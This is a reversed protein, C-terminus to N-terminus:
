FGLLKGLGSFVASFAKELPGSPEGTRSKQWFLSYRGTFEDDVLPAKGWLYPWFVETRHVGATLRADFGMMLDQEMRTSRDGPSTAVVDGGGQVILSGTGAFMIYRVQWTALSQIGWRWRTELTPAGLVGVVHSPRMVVGPHDEFDIRMLYSNPDDPAALTAETGDEDGTIRSLSHLGAAFSIFPANWDYLIQSRVTGQVPRVYESRASLVEGASLRIPLTREAPGAHLTAFARGSGAALQLPRQARSVLPMLVFYSITRWFPPTVIVVLAIWLLPKSAQAWQEALWDAARAFRGARSSEIDDLRNERADLQKLEGTQANDHRLTELKEASSLDDAGLIALREKAKALKQEGARLRATAAKVKDQAEKCRNRGPLVRELKGMLGCALRAARVRDDVASRLSSVQQDLKRKAAAETRALSGVQSDLEKVLVAKEARIRDLEALDKQAQQVDPLQSFVLYALFGLVVMAGILLAKRLLFGLVTAILRM